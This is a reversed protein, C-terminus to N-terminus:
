YYSDGRKLKRLIRCSARPKDRITFSKTIQLKDKITEFGINCQSIDAFNYRDIDRFNLKNAKLYKENAYFLVGNIDYIGIRAPNLDVTKALIHNKKELLNRRECKYSENSVYKILKKVDVPKILSLSVVDILDVVSVISNLSFPTILIIQLNKKDIKEIDSLHKKNELDILFIDYENPDVFPFEDELILTDITGFFEGLLLSYLKLVNKNQAAILISAQM